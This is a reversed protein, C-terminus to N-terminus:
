ENTDNKYGKVVYKQHKSRPKDPITLVLKGAKILALLIYERLYAKDKIGIFSQIEQRSKPTKCFSLILSQRNDHPSDQLTDQQSDHQTNQAGATIYKQYKSRPKDPMARLLKKEAILPNLVHVSFYSRDSVKVHAQIEERTKPTKCFSLILSQRNDHLTDHQTDHPTDQQTDQQFFPVPLIFKFLANDDVLQPNSGCYSKCFKYINRIGSGLEEARGLLRFAKAINPHIEIM